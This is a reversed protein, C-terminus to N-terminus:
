PILLVKGTTKRGELARHADAADKLPFEFETRLTLRGSAPDTDCISFPRRLVRHQFLPLRLHVFQGPQAARAIAPAALDLRYYSGGLPRNDTVPATEQHKM